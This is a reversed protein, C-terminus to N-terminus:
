SIKVSAVVLAAARTVKGGFVHLGKVADAFRKEPRYTDVELLQQAYSTAISSGAYAIPGAGSLVIDTANGASTGNVDVTAVKGDASVSVIKASTGVNTGAVSAGVDAQSFTGADAHTLTKGTTTVAVTGSIARNVTGANNSKYIRFGAADGVRGNHLADSGSENAKIFRGDLQLVGYVSPPLVLFRNEEPVNAEDLKVSAPVILKEYLEEANSSTDIVGLANGAAGRMRAALFQDARDRLGFAARSTAERMTAGNNRVQAKDIDDIQFNFANAQDILLIQEADTLAEPDGLNTNKAYPAITPDSISNIHVSDGYQSIDGEYDRNVVGDGGFVLSKELAVLLNAAWVEPTSYNLAM